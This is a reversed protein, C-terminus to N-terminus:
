RTKADSTVRRFRRSKQRLKALRRADIGVLIGVTQLAATKLQLHEAMRDFVPKQQLVSIHTYHQRTTRPDKHDLSKSVLAEDLGLIAAESAFAKRLVHFTVGGRVGWQLGASTAATKCATKISAVPKGRFTIVRTADPRADRLAKLIERLEDSIPTIQPEHRHHESKYADFTIFRLDRDCHEVLDLALVQELRLKSALAGIILALRVHPPAHQVWARLDEPSLSMKRVRPRERDVDRFPNMTVGTLKRYRPRMAIRYLGSLASWYSNKTSADIKRGAMWEEFREIWAPDIIPDALQLDHYVGGAVPHRLPERGWFALVMRVTREWVDLRRLKKKKVARCQQAWTTFSPSETAVELGAAARRARRMAAEEVQRADLENRQKTSKRHRTGDVEFEYWYVAGRKYISM